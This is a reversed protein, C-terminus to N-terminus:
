ASYQMVQLLRDYQMKWRNLEAISKGMGQIEQEAQHLRHLADDRERTLIHLERKFRVTQGKLNGDM